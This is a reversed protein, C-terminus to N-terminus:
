THLNVGGKQQTPRWAVGVWRSAPDEHQVQGVTAWGKDRAPRWVDGRGIDQSGQAPHSGAPRNSGRGWCTRQLDRTRNGQLSDGRNSRGAMNNPHEVLQEMKWTNDRPVATTQGATNTASAVTITPVYRRAHRGVTAGSHAPPPKLAPSPLRVRGWSGGVDGAPILKSRSM